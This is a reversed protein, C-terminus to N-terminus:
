RVSDRVLVEHPIVVTRGVSPPEASTDLIQELAREAVERKSFRVTTLRPSSFTGEEIDDIGIVSVQGPVDVGRERLARLAGIALLDSFCFLADISVGSDLLALTARYGEARSYAEVEGLLTTDIELGAAALATRYGRLRLDSTDHVRSPQTGVVGIRRCGREILYGTATAAVKENEITVHPFPSESEQEGLIVLPATDRREALDDTSLAAASLVVGDFVHVGEGDIVARERDAAGDTQNFVITIEHERAAAVFQAALEAFYPQDLEPLAVAVMGSRGSRLLRASANVRYNLATLAEEVTRRTQETVIGTGNVVNSVTKISVGAMEAVDKMRVRPM